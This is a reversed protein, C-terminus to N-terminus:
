AAYAQPKKTRIVKTKHMFRDHQNKIGFGPCHVLQLQPVVVGKSVGPTELTLWNHYAPNMINIHLIRDFYSMKSVGRRVHPVGWRAWGQIANAHQPM